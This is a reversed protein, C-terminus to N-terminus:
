NRTAVNFLRRKIEITNKEVKEWSDVNNISWFVCKNGKKKINFVNQHQRLVYNFIRHVLIYYIPSHIALEYCNYSQFDSEYEFIYNM